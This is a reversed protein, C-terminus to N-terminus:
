LSQVTLEYVSQLIPELASMTTMFYNQGLGEIHWSGDLSIGCALSLYLHHFMVGKGNEPRIKLRIVSTHCRSSFLGLEEVGVMAKMLVLIECMM